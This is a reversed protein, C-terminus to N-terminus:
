QSSFALRKARSSSGTLSITPPEGDSTLSSVDTVTELYPREGGSGACSVASVTRRYHESRAPRKLGSRRICPAYQFSAYGSTVM